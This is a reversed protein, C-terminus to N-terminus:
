KREQQRAYEKLVKKEIYDYVSKGSNITKQLIYLEYFVYCSGIYPTLLIALTKIHNPKIPYRDILKTMEFIDVNLLKYLGFGLTLAINLLIGFIMENEYALLWHEM